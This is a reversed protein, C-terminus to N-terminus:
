NKNGECTNNVLQYGRICECYYSGFTNVCQQVHTCNHVQHDPDCENVDVHIQCLYIVCHYVDVAFLNLM